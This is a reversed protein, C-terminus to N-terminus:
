SKFGIVVRTKPRGIDFSSKSAFEYCEWIQDENLGTKETIYTINKRLRDVPPMGEFVIEIIKLIGLKYILEKQHNNPSNFDLSKM